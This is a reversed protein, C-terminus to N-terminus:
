EIWGALPQDALRDVRAHRGLRAAVTGPASVKPCVEDEGALLMEVAQTLAAAAEIAEADRTLEPVRVDPMTRARVHTHRQEHRATPISQKEVIRPVRRNGDPPRIVADAHDIGRLRSREDPVEEVATIQAPQHALHGIQEPMRQQRRPPRESEELRSSVEVVGLLDSLQWACKALLPNRAVAHDIERGITFREAPVLADSMELPLGLQPRIRGGDHFLYSRLVELDDGVLIGHEVFLRREECLRLQAAKEQGLTVLARAGRPGAITLPLAQDIERVRLRRGPPPRRM